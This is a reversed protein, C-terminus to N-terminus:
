ANDDNFHEDLEISDEVYNTDKPEDTAGIQSEIIVNSERMQEKQQMLELNLNEAVNDSNIVKNNTNANPNVNSNVNITETKSESIVQKNNKDSETPIEHMPVNNKQQTSVDQM